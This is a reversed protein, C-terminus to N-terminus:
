HIETSPTGEPVMVLIDVGFVLTALDPNTAGLLANFDRRLPRLDFVTWDSQLRNSLMPQLYHSRPDDEVNFSRLQAPQGVRPHIPQSGKVAILRIHLSQARQGDAFEAVYNGIGTGRVPNVGRYIHYAGFKLLVRPPTIATRAAQTYDTSLRTKMLRERRRANDYDAPSIRNIEHSEILSAFLSRAEPSGHRQLVAAGGALDQDDASLMFLDTIRGSQLAKRYADENKQFLQRMTPRAPEGLRSELIRSLILGGAGLAEQNM